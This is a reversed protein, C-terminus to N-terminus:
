GIYYHDPGWHFEGQGSREDNDWEGKYYKGNELTLIGFRKEYEQVM